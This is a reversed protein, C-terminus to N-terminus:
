FDLKLQKSKKHEYKVTLLGDIYTMSMTDLDVKDSLRYPDVHVETGHQRSKYTLHLKGDLIHVQISNKDVGALEIVLTNPTEEAWDKTPIYYKISSTINGPWITDNWPWPINTGTTTITQSNPGLWDLKYLEM